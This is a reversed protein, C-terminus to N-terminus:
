GLHLGTAVVQNEGPHGMQKATEQVKSHQDTYRGQGHFPQHKGNRGSEHGASASGLPHAVARTAGTMMAQRSNARSSDQGMGHVHKKRASERGLMAKTPKKNKAWGDTKTNLEPFTVKRM